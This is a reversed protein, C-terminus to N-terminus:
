GLMRWIRVLLKPEFYRCDFDSNRVTPHMTDILNEEEIEGHVSHKVKHPKGYKKECTVIDHDFWNHHLFRCDKCYVESM